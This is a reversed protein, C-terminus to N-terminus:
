ANYYDNVYDRQVENLGASFQLQVYGHPPEPTNRPLMGCERPLKGGKRTNCSKCATTVNEWTTAEGRSAFLRAPKVHDITLEQHANGPNAKYDCYQCSYNDRAFMVRKSVYRSESYSVEVYHSSNMIILPAPIDLHQSRFRRTADEALVQFANGGSIMQEAINAVADQMPVLGIPKASADLTLTKTSM